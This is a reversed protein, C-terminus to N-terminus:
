IYSPYWSGVAGCREIGWGCQRGEDKCLEEGPEQRSPGGGGSAGPSTSQAQLTERQLFSVMLLSATDAQCGAADPVQM